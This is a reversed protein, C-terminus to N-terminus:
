KYPLKELGNLPCNILLETLKPGNPLQLEPAIEHLPYLVFEREKMGYHPVTLEVSDIVQTGFILIDLDLTRPGWREAKRVRGHELEIKQLCHLFEVAQMETQVEVVANVYSPQDQPGMPRSIYLSSTASIHSAPLSEIARLAQSVQQEPQALNSGLGVYVQSM